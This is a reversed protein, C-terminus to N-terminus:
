SDERAQKLAPGTARGAALLAARADDALAGADTPRLGREDVEASRIESGVLTLRFLGQPGTVLRHEAADRARAFREAANLIGFARSLKAELAREFGPADPPPLPAPPDSTFATAFDPPPVVWGHGHRELILRAMMAKFKANRVAELIAAAVRAPGLAGWWGPDIGLHTLTGAVDVACYVTGSADTGDISALQPIPQGPATRAAVEEISESFTLTDRARGDEGSM